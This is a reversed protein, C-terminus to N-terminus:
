RGSGPPRRRRPRTAWAWRSRTRAARQIPRSGATAREEHEARSARAHQAPLPVLGDHGAPVRLAQGPGYPRKRGGSRPPEPEPEPTRAPPPPAPRSAGPGPPVVTTPPGDAPGTGPVRGPVPTPPRDVPGPARRGLGPRLRRDRLQGALGPLPAVGGGRAAVHPLRGGGAAYADRFEARAPRHTTPTRTPTTPSAPSRPSTGCAPSAWGSCMGAEVPAGAPDIALTLAAADMVALLSVIWSNRPRPSRLYLLSPYSTHSEAVDAAWREWEAFLSPLNDIIGVLQHRILLEPGWAPAGARSELLTVLTERRNYSSYLTPLYAIQLAVLVLGTGAALFDVVRSGEAHSSTFGLTFVSSGAESFADFLSGDGIGWNILTFGIMAMLLWTVLLAVLAVPECVALIRDKAAYTRTLSAVRRFVARVALIPPLDRLQGGAPPRGARRARQPRHGRPRRDRGAPRPPARRDGPTIRHTLRGRRPGRPVRGQARAVMDALTFSELHTRMHEGVDAWVALLVCQGEHDCAGNEHPLGFDGAVIPGDVASVIQSLTIEEPPRALM